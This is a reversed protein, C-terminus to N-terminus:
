GGRMEEKVGVNSNIKVGISKGGEPGFGFPTLKLALTIPVRIEAGNGLNLVVNSNITANHVFGNVLTRVDSETLRAQVEVLNIPKATLDHEKGM